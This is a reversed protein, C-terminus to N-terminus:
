EELMQRSLPYRMVAVLAFATLLPALLFTACGLCWVVEPPRADAAAGPNFGIASLVGGSGMLGLAIASKLAVSFLASYAGDKNVGTRRLWLGAVDAVM